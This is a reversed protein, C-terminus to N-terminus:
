VHARRDGQVRKPTYLSFLYYLGLYVLVTIPLAIMYTRLSLAGDDSSIIQFNIVWAAVYSFLLVFADILVQLRNFHKQNEKIM